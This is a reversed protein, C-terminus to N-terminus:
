QILSGISTFHVPNKHFTNPLSPSHHGPEKKNNKIREQIQALTIKRHSRQSSTSYKWKIVPQQKNDQCPPHSSPSVDSWLGRCSFTVVGTYRESFNGSKPFQVQSGVNGTRLFSTKTFTGYIKTEMVVTTQKTISNKRLVPLTPDWTWNGFDPLKKPLSVPTTVKTVLRHEEKMEEETIKGLHRRNTRFRSNTEDM